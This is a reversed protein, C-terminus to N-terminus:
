EDLPEAKESVPNIISKLNPVINKITTKCEPDFLYLIIIIAIQTFLLYKLYLLL